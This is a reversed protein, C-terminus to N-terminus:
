EFGLDEFMLDNMESEMLVTESELSALDDETITAGTSNTITTTQTKTQSSKTQSITQQSEVGTTETPLSEQTPALTTKKFISYAIIGLVVVIILIIISSFGRTNYKM